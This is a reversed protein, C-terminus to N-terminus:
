GPEAVEGSIDPERKRVFFDHLLARAEEAMLGGSTQCRERLGPYDLLNLRTGAAGQDPSAAGFVVRRVRAQLIAGACMPCPELTVYLTAGNLRWDGVARCAEELARIEAHGLPSQSQERCNRGQGLLAGERVVVAGVPIEGQDLAQRALELALEMWKRDLEQEAVEM